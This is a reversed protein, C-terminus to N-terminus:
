HFRFHFVFYLVSSKHELFSPALDVILQEDYSSIMSKGSIACITDKAMLVWM